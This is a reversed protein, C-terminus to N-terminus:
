ETQLTTPSALWLRNTAQSASDSESVYRKLEDLRALIYTPDMGYRHLVRELQEEDIDMVWKRLAVDVEGSTTPMEKIQDHEPRGHFDPGAWVRLYYPIFSDNDHGPDFSPGAFSSGHDILGIKNGKDAPGVMLNNGHRDPNAALFDLVSWKFLEGSVRYKEIAERPLNPEEYMTRHLNAFDMPWMEICAVEKGDVSMLHAPQVEKIGLQNAIGWFAAERRSQSAKTEDVGAAPSKKGSGPKLLYLRHDLKAIYSGGSHKGSLSVPEVKGTKYAQTLEAAVDDSGPSIGVVSRPEKLIDDSKHLRMERVSDFAKRGEPSTLGYATIVAEKPDGDTSRLANRVQSLDIDLNTLFKAVAILEHFSVSFGLQDSPISERKTLTKVWQAVKSKYDDPDIGVDQPRMSAGIKRLHNWAKRALEQSRRAEDKTYGLRTHITKRRNPDMLYDHLYAITEEPQAEAADKVGAADYLSRIHMLHHEPLKALTAEVIRRQNNEGFKQGLRSFVSHQAEHHEVAFARKDSDIIRALNTVPGTVGKSQLRVSTEQSPKKTFVRAASTVLQNRPMIGKSPDDNYTNSIWGGTSSTAVSSPSGSYKTRNRMTQRNGVFMPKTYVQGEGLNPYTVFGINKKLKKKKLNENHRLQELAEPHTVKTYEILEPSVQELYKLMTRLTSLRVEARNTEAVRNSYDTLARLQLEPALKTNNLFDYYLSSSRTPPLEKLTDLLAAQAKPTQWAQVAQHLGNLGRDPNKNHELAEKALDGDPFIFSSLEYLSFDGTKEDRIAQAQLKPSVPLARRARDFVAKKVMSAALKPQDAHKKSIEDSVLEMIKEQQADTLNKGTRLWDTLMNPTSATWKTNYGDLLDQNVDAPLNQTEYSSLVRNGMFGNIAWKAVEPSKDPLTRVLGSVFADTKGTKGAHESLRKVADLSLNPNAVLNNLYYPDAHTQARDIIKNQSEPSLRRNSCLLGINERNNFRDGGDFVTDIFSPDNVTAPDGYVVVRRVM